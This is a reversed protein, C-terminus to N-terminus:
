NTETDSHVSRNIKDTFARAAATIDPEGVVATVVAIRRAGRKLVEDVNHLKIGGMVTFPHQIVNTILTILDPGVPAVSTKKTGTAFIPGINFYSAGEAVARQAQELSHTSAGIIKHPGLISRAEPIPFDNQGLHVGDADVALAIDIHDNIIFTVNRERTLKRLRYAWSLLERKEMCKDRLQIAGTGGAIAKEAVEGFDRGCSFESGLVVYLGFDLKKQMSWQQLKQLFDPEIDYCRYRLQTYYSVCNPAISRLSEELVRFSEQVRHLNSQALAYLDQHAPTAYNRGIDGISDRSQLGKEQVGPIRSLIKWHEARVSRLSEALNQDELVFRAIDGTVRLGEAARDANADLMRYFGSDLTQTM